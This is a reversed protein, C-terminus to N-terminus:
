LSTLRHLRTEGDGFDKKALLTFGRTSMGKLFTLLLPTQKKRVDSVSIFDRYSIKVFPIARMGM